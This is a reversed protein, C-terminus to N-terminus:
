IALIEKSIMVAFVYFKVLDPVKCKKLYKAIKAYYIM